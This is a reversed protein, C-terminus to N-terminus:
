GDMIMLYIDQMSRYGARATAVARGAVLLGHYPVSTTM